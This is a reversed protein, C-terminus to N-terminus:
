LLLSGRPGALRHHVSNGASGKVMVCQVLRSAQTKLRDSYLPVGVVPVYPSPLHLIRPQSRHSTHSFSRSPTHPGPELETAPGKEGIAKRKLLTQLSTKVYYLLVLSLLQNWHCQVNVSGKLTAQSVLILIYAFQNHAFVYCFWDVVLQMINRGRLDEDAAYLVLTNTCFLQTCFLTKYAASLPRRPRFTM